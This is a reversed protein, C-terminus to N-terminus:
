GKETVKSVVTKKVPKKVTTTRPQTPTTESLTQELSTWVLDFEQTFKGHFFTSTVKNVIFVIGSVKAAKNYNFFRIDRDVTMTGSTMSYDVGQNFAIEIFIAGATPNMAYSDKGSVLNRVLYDPDGMISLRASFYDSPSQLSTKVANVSNPQNKQGGSRNGGPPLDAKPQNAAIQNTSNADVGATFYLNNFTQEYSLIETNRGTFWYDYRKFPGTYKSPNTVYSSKVYPTTYPQITFTTNYAYDSLVEDFGLVTISPIVSFWRFQTPSQNTQTAGSSELNSSETKSLANKIYASHAVIQELVNALHTGTSFALVRSGHKTTSNKPAAGDNSEITKGIASMPAMKKFSSLEADSLLKSSPIDTGVFKVSFTNAITKKGPARRKVERASEQANLQPILGNAGKAVGNVVDQVTAGSLSVKSILVGRKVGQSVRLNTTEAEIDYGVMHGDLKFKMSMFTIPYLRELIDGPRISKGTLIKGADDYGVFKLGIAYHQDLVRIQSSIGPLKSTQQVKAAAQTLKTTFSAGYPEYVKFRFKLSMPNSSETAQASVFTEFTLDDIFFDTDFGPARKNQGANNIGGSQAVLYFGSSEVPVVSGMQEATYYLNAAEPSIMYLSIIYTYSAFKGLPNPNTATIAQTTTKVADDNM